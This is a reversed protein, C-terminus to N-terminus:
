GDCSKCVSRHLSSAIQEHGVPVCPVFGWSLLLQLDTDTDVAMTDQLLRVTTMARIKERKDLRGSSSSWGLM